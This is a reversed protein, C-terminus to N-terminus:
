SGFVCVDTHSMLISFGLKQSWHSFVLKGRWKKKMTTDFGECFFVIQTASPRFVLFLESKSWPVSKLLDGRSARESFLKEQLINDPKELKEIDKKTVNIWTEANNMLSGILIGDRM